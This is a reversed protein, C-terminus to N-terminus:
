WNKVWAVFVFQSDYSLWTNMFCIKAFFNQRVECNRSIELFYKLKRGMSFDRFTFWTFALQACSTNKHCCEPPGLLKM